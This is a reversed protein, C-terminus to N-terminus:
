NLDEFIRQSLFQLRGHLTAKKSLYADFATIELASRIKVLGVQYIVIEVM